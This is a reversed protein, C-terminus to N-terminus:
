DSGGGMMPMLSAELVWSGTYGYDYRDACVMLGAVGMPLTVEDTSDGSRGSGDVYGDPPDDAIIATFCQAYKPDDQWAEDAQWVCLDYDSNPRLTVTLPQMMPNDVEPVGCWLDIDASTSEYSWDAGPSVTPKVTAFSSAADCSYPGSNPNQMWWQGGIILYDGGAAAHAEAPWCDYTPPDTGDQAGAERAVLAGLMIVGLVFVIAVFILGAKDIRSLM